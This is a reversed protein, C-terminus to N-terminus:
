FSVFTVVWQGFHQSSHYVWYMYGNGYARSHPTWVGWPKALPRRLDNQDVVRGYIHTQIAIPGDIETLM